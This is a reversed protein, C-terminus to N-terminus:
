KQSVQPSMLVLKALNAPVEPSEGAKSAPAEPSRAVASAAWALL